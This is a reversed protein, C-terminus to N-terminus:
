RLTRCFRPSNRNQAQVSSFIGIARLTRTVSTRVSTRCSKCVKADGEDSDHSVLSSHTTASSARTDIDIKRAERSIHLSITRFSAYWSLM